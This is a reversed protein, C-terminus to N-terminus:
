TALWSRHTKVIASPRIIGSDYWIRRVYWLIGDSVEQLHPSLVGM